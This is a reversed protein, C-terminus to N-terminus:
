ADGGSGFDEADWDVELLEDARALADDMTSGIDDLLSMGDLMGSMEQRMSEIEAIAPDVPSWAVRDLWRPDEGAWTALIDRVLTPDSTYLEFEGAATHHTVQYVRDPLLRARIWRDDREIELLPDVTGSHGTFLEDLLADPLAPLTRGDGIRVEIGSKARVGEDM